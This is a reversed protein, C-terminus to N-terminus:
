RGGPRPPECRGSVDRLGAARSRRDPKQEPRALSDPAGLVDGSVASNLDDCGPHHASERLRLRCGAHPRAALAQHPHALRADQRNGRRRLALLRDRRQEKRGGALLPGRTRPRDAADLNDEVDKSAPATAAYQEIVRRTVSPSLLANGEAVVRVAHLLEEPPANKLLFGSAGVRLAEFVYDDREFTTLIVVRAHTGPEAVIRRTAELGDTKPMQIDMLVVDPNLSRALRIAEDGDQAEGVVRLDTEAGLIMRFGARVLAQDDVILVSITM